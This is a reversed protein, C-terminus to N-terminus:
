DELSFESNRNATGFDTAGGVCTSSSISHRPDDMFGSRGGALSNVRVPNQSRLTRPALRLYSPM